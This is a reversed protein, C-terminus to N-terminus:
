TKVLEILYGPDRRLEVEARTEVAGCDPPNNCDVFFMVDIEGYSSLPLKLYFFICLSESKFLIFSPYM